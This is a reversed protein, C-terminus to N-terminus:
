EDDGEVGVRVRVRKRYVELRVYLGRRVSVRFLWWACVCGRARLQLM